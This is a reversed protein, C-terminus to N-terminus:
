SGPLCTLDVLLFGNKVRAVKARERLRCCVQDTHKRKPLRLIDLGHPLSRKHINRGGLRDCFIRFGHCQLDNFELADEIPPDGCPVARM